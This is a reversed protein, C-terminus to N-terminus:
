LTTTTNSEGAVTCKPLVGKTRLDAIISQSPIGGNLCGGCHHLAIVTNDSTAIIPSGSSGEQTDVYYGVDDDRCETVTLSEVRGPQGNHLWAIRKGYGLPHQPIYIDENLVAGTGRFQLYGTKEYVGSFNTLSMNVGLRVLAYDLDESVAILTTGAVGASGPCGGRTDCTESGRCSESEAFFEVKTNLADQNNGICHQNTILHGECGVLWGTCYAIEMGNEKIISLRAVPQSKLLMVAGEESNTSSPACAAEVSEDTGCLSENNIDDDDDTANATSTLPVKIADQLHQAEEVLEKPSFLLENVAFGRCSTSNAKDPASAKFLELTVGSGAIGTSYFKGTANKGSLAAVPHSTADSARIVLVDAEPLNFQKFHLVYIGKGLGPDLQLRYSPETATAKPLASYNSFKCGAGVLLEVVHGTTQAVVGVLAVATLLIVIPWQM